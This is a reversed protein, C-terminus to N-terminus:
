PLKSQPTSNKKKCIFIKHSADTKDNLSYCLACSNKVDFPFNKGQLKSKSDSNPAKFHDLKTALAVTNYNILDSKFSMTEMRKEVEFANDIINDLSPRACNTVAM